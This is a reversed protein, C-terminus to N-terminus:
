CDVWSDSDVRHINTPSTALTLCNKMRKGSPPPPPPDGCRIKLNQIKQFFCLAISIKIEIKFFVNVLLTKKTSYFLNHFKAFTLANEVYM